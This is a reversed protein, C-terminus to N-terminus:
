YLLLRYLFQKKMKMTSQKNYEVGSYVCNEQQVTWGSISGLPQDHHSVRSEERTKRMRLRETGRNSDM